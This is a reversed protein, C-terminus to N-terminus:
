IHGGRKGETLSNLIQTACVFGKKTEATKHNIKAFFKSYRDYFAFNSKVFRQVRAINLV